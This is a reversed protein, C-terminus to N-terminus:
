ENEILLIGSNSRSLPSELLSPRAAPRPSQVPLRFKVAKIEEEWERAAEASPFALYEDHLNGATAVHLVYPAGHIGGPVVTAATVDRALDLSRQPRATRSSAKRLVLRTPTVAWMAPRWARYRGHKADAAPTDKAGGFLRQMLPIAVWTSQLVKNKLLQLEDDVVLRTTM